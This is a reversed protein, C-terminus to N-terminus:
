ASMRGGSNQVLPGPFTGLLGIKGKYDAGKRPKVPIELHHHNSQRAAAGVLPGEIV